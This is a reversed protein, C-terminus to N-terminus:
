SECSVKEGREFRKHGDCHRGDDNRLSVGVDEGSRRRCQGQGDPLSEFNATRALGCAYCVRSTHEESWTM